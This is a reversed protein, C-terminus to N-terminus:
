EGHEHPVFNIDKGPATQVLKPLDEPHVIGVLPYGGVTPGDNLTVIPQGSPPVQICGPILPLSKIQLRCELEPGILQYGTRDISTSVQYSAHFLRNASPFESTHPATMVRIAGNGQPQNIRRRVNRPFLESSSCARVTEGSRIQQGIDSRAHYSTSGFSEDTSFGGPASLYSWVGSGPNFTLVQGKRCLQATGTPLIECQLGGTHALWTDELVELQAGGLGIELLTSHERNLLLENALSAASPHLPGCPAIGFRLQNVRPAGQFSLSPGPRLVKLM